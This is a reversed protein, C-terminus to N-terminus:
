WKTHFISPLMFTWVCATIVLYLIGAALAYRHYRSIKRLPFLWGVCGLIALPVPILLVLYEISAAGSMRWFLATVLLAVWGCFGLFVLIIPVDPANPVQRRQMDRRVKLYLFSGVALVALNVSIVFLADM